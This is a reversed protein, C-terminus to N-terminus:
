HVWKNMDTNGDLDQCVTRLLCDGKALRLRLHITLARLKRANDMMIDQTRKGCENEAVARFAEVLQM